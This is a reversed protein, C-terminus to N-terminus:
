HLGIKAPKWISSVGRLIAPIPPQCSQGFATETDADVLNFLAASMKARRGGPLFQISIFKGAGTRLAYDFRHFGAFWFTQEVQPVFFSNRILYLLAQRL